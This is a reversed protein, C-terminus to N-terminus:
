VEYEHEKDYQAAVAKLEEDDTFVDEALDDIFRHGKSLQGAVFETFQQYRRWAQAKAADKESDSVTPTHAFWMQVFVAFAESMVDVDRSLRDLARGHRDLRRFLLTTDNNDDLYEKIAAEVVSSESASKAKCFNKLRKQLDHSIYPHIRKQQKKEKM